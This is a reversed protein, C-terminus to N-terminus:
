TGKGFIADAARVADMATRCYHDAGIRDAYEANMVAGGVATVCDVGEEKLLAITREMSAVTTTMLASLGVMRIRGEKAERVVTEPPVDKGLDVIEYGYNEMIAKVINKGIDHIDGKVTALIVRGRAAAGGGAMKGRLTEFARKATEASKIMQPLFIEGSEYEAGVRELAPLVVKEIAELPQMFSMLREAAAAARTEFGQAIIEGLGEDGARPPPDEPPGAKPGAAARPSAYSIYAAAGRDRGLLAEGSRAVDMYAANTPDIIPADIGALMAMALFSANLLNRGPLGFSINSVGLATRMGYREKILRMARLTERCADQQASITLALCDVILRERGIGHREAGLIIKELVDLRGEASEPIGREDLALAIAATGYRKMIPFIEDMRRAEGSVSNVIPKGRCARVAADMISADTCDIMLAADLSGEIRRLCGLLASREDIEPLGANVNIIEAGARLQAAAEDQVYDYDGSVLARKLLKKGTPNLREGVIRLRGDFIVARSASCASPAPAPARTAAARPRGDVLSRLAAIYAPDTGCCGGIVAVGADLMEAAAAAFEGVNVDYVARGGEERPLGANPQAIVPIHAHALMELAAPLMQRPGLSCNLGVADIGMDQLIHVAAAPDTGTLMRGDEQFTVSCFVPLGCGEKVALAAAKMEFIDTFTELIIFDAGAREAAAAQERFLGYAEDFGMDGMPAMLRGIPGIDYAVFRSGGAEGIAARANAVAARAMDAVSVGAPALKLRNAGFTNTSVYDSGAALYEAHIGRILEPRAINLMEPLGGAELGRTQMMTGMAGDGVIPGSKLKETIGIAM